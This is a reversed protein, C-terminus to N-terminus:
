RYTFVPLNKEVFNKLISNQSLLKKRPDSEPNTHLIEPDQDTYYNSRIWMVSYFIAHIRFQINIRIVILLSLSFYM